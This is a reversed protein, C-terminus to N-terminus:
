AIWLIISLFGQFGVSFLCFNIHFVKSKVWKEKKKLFFFRGGFAEVWVNFLLYTAAVHDVGCGPPLSGNRMWLQFVRIGQNGDIATLPASSRVGGGGGRFSPNNM